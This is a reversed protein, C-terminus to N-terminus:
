QNYLSKHFNNVEDVLYGVLYALAEHNDATLHVGVDDLIHWSCHVCEHSVTSQEFYKGDVYITFLSLGVDELVFHASQGSNSDPIEHRFGYKKFLHDSMVNPDFGIIVLSFYIPLDIEKIKTKKAM